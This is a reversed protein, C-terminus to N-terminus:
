CASRAFCTLHTLTPCVRAQGRAGMYESLKLGTVNPDVPDEQTWGASTPSAVRPKEKSPLLLVDPHSNEPTEPKSFRRGNWASQLVILTFRLESYTVGPPAIAFRTFAVPSV